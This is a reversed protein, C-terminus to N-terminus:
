GATFIKDHIDKLISEEIKAERGLKYILNICEELAQKDGAKKAIMACNMYSALLDIVRETTAEIAKSESFDIDNFAYVLPNKVFDLSTSDYQSTKLNFAIVYKHKLRFDPPLSVPSKTFGFEKAQKITEKYEKNNEILVALIKDKDVAESSVTIFSKKM